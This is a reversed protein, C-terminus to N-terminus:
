NNFAKKDYLGRYNIFQHNENTTPIIKLLTYKEILKKFKTNGYKSLGNFFLFYIEYDSLQSRVISAYEYKVKFNQENDEEFNSKDIIKFIRYLNRYYHGLDTNLKSFILHYISQFYDEIITDEFEMTEIEFNIRFIDYHENYIDDEDVDEIDGNEDIQPNNIKLKLENSISIINELLEFFFKFSDRSKIEEDIFIGGDFNALHFEEYKSNILPNDDIIQVIIQDNFINKNIDINQVIQNQFEILKFLKNEFNQLYDKKEQKEFQEQVQKNAKYQMYFALSAAIIGIFSIAPNMIGGILDGYSGVKSYDTKITNAQQLFNESFSLTVAILLACISLLFFSFIITKSKKYRKKKNYLEFVEFIFYGFAIVFIISFILALLKM